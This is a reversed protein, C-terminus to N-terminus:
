HAPAGNVPAGCVGCFKEQGSLANGCSACVHSEEPVAAGCVGCFKANDPMAAGCSACVPADKEAPASSEEASPIALGCKNCFKSSALVEANCNPCIRKEAEALEREYVKASSSNGMKGKRLAVHARAEEESIQHKAVREAIEALEPPISEQGVYRSILLGTDFGQDALKKNKNNAWADRAADGAAGFVRAVVYPVVFYLVAILAVLGIIILMSQDM